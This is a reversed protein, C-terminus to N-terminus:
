GYNESVASPYLEAIPPSKHEASDNGPLIGVTDSEYMRSRVNEPFLSSVITNTRKASHMIKNQRRRVIM